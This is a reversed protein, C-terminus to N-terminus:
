KKWRRRLWLGATALGALAFTAPEPVATVSQLVINDLEIGHVSNPANFDNFTLHAGSATSSATFAFSQHTVANGSAGGVASFLFIDAGFVASGNWVFGANPGSGSSDFTLLYQQGALINFVANSQVANPAGGSGVMDLCNTGAGSSCLFYSGHQDGVIDVNNGTVTFVTNPIAGTYGGGPTAAEFNETLIVGSYLNPALCLLFVWGLRKTYTM